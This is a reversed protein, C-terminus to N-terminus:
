RKKETIVLNGSTDVHADYGPLVPATASPEEIIAPGQVLAGPGLLARDYISWEREGGSERHSAQRIGKLAVTSDRPMPDLAPLTPHDLLATSRLRYTVVEVPDTLAYDYEAKHGKDFLGRLGETNIKTTEGLRLTLTHEQNEYRMDISRVLKQREPPVRGAEFARLAQEALANYVDLIETTDLDGLTSIRTLSFDRVQDLTLMGWASFAAPLRPIVITPVELRAALANAVLPGAGGYAILTFERPDFGKGITLDELTAAMKAEALAIIGAAAERVNMRLKTAIQDDIGSRAADADLKIEGGLFFAPDLLGSVIAADTFTPETGGRGYCIPGPVAGASRPGVDLAGSSDIWAISGGGAGITDLDVVPILLPVDNIKTASSIAPEGDIILAADFSTGGMDAAIVRPLHLAAGLAAAGMVGSAPGSLLTKVCARRAEEVDMVGGDSRTILLAGTLGDARLSEDLANLYRSMRPRIIADVATTATREYERFERTLRHSLTVVLEPFEEGLTVAIQEEHQPYAYANILSVAVSGIGADRLARGADLVDDRSLPKLISGDAGIRETVEFRLRRPILPRPKEWHLHYMPWNMRGIELVDRFGATTILGTPAGEGELLTNVGLTTGHFLCDVAALEIGAKSLARRVGETPDAPTTSVKSLTVGREPDFAILDTFTGGIDVAVYSSM